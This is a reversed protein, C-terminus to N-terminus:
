PRNDSIPHQVHDKLYNNVAGLSINFEKAIERQTASPNCSKFWTIMEVRKRKETARQANIKAVRRAQIRSFEAKTFNKYVWKGVSKSTARIESFPLPNEFRDNYIEAQRFCLELWPSFAIDWDKRRAKYSWRRLDDFLCCNRGLGTAPVRRRRDLYAPDLDVYDHLWALDYLHPQYTDVQWYDSLPNKCVLGAYGLDAGLKITLANEIAAAYRQPKQLADPATKRVPVGLGYLLHAHYNKKNTVVINPSPVSEDAWDIHGGPRDIDFVMWRFHTPGNHQIYRAQLAQAKPMKYLGRTFDDTAKPWDIISNEFFTLQSNKRGGTPTKVQNPNQIVSTTIM